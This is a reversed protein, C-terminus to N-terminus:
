KQRFLGIKVIILKGLEAEVVYSALFQISTNTSYWVRPVASKASESQSVEAYSHVSRFTDWPPLNGTIIRAQINEEPIMPAILKVCQLQEETSIKLPMHVSTVKLPCVGADITAELAAEYQASRIQDFSQNYQSLIPYSSFVGNGTQRGSINMMEGFASRWETKASVEDVFDIRTAVGPYRSIGQVALIEIQDRKLIKVLELIHKKEIRKSFNNLNLSAVFVTMDMKRATEKETKPSMSPCGYFIFCALLFYFTKM